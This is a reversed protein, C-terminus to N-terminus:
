QSACLGSPVFAEHVLEALSSGPTPPRLRLDGGGQFTYGPGEAACVPVPEVIREAAGTALVHFIM